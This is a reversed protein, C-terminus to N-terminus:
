FMLNHIIAAGSSILAIIALYVEKRSNVKTLELSFRQNKNNSLEEVDRELGSLATSLRQDTSHSLKEVDRELGSIATTIPGNPGHRVVDDLDTVTSSLRKLNSSNITVQILLERQERNITTLLSLIQGDLTVSM